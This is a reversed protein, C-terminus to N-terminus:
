NGYFNVLKNKRCYNELDEITEISKMNENYFDMDKMVQLLTYDGEFYKQVPRESLQMDWVACFLVIYKRFFDKMIEIDKNKIKTDDEGPTFKWDDSLKLTGVKRAILREPNFSPKVRISHTGNNASFYFSFSLKNPNAVYNGVINAMEIMFDNEKITLKM